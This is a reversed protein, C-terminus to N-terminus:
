KHKWDGHILYFEEEPILIRYVLEGSGDFKVYNMKILKAIAKLANKKNVKFFDCITELTIFSSKTEFARRLAKLELEEDSLIKKLNLLKQCHQYFLRYEEDTTADLEYVLRRFLQILKEDNVSKAKKLMEEAKVAAKAQTDLEKQDGLHGILLMVKHEFDKDSEWSCIPHFIQYLEFEEKTEACFVIEMDCHNKKKWEYVYRVATQISKGLSMQKEDAKLTPIALSKISKEQATLLVNEYCSELYKKEDERLSQGSACIVHIVYRASLNYGKTIRAEGVDFYGLSSFEEKLGDGALDAIRKNPQLGDMWVNDILSVVGECNVKTVDGWAVRIDKM